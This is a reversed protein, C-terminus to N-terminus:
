KRAGLTPRWGVIRAMQFLTSLRLRRPCYEGDYIRRITTYNIDFEISFKRMTNQDSERLYLDIKRIFKESLTDIHTEDRKRRNRQKTM